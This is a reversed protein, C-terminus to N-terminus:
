VEDKLKEKIGRLYAGDGKRSLPIIFVGFYKNRTSVYDTTGSIKKENYTDFKEATLTTIEGGMYAYAESFTAEEDSRYETLNLSSGWTVEYYANSIFKDSNLLEYKVDFEYSSPNFTYIKRIVQSSDSNIFLNYILKFDQQKEIDIRQWPKYNCNFVLDKTYINKGDKNTFFLSLEKGAKWDILQITDGDWKKFNKVIYKRIAGGYNTFEM